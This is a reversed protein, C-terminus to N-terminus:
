IPCTLSERIGDENIFNVCKTEITNLILDIFVLVLASLSAISTPIDKVSKLVLITAGDFSTGTRTYSMASRTHRSYICFEVGSLSM